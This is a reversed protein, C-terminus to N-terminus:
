PHNVVFGATGEQKLKDRLKEVHKRDIEPGIRVRYSAKGDKKSTDVYAQYGKKRLRDRLAISSKKNSSTSVQLAWAKVPKAPPKKKKQEIKKKRTDIPTPVPELEVQELSPFSPKAPIEITRAHRSKYGSGDLMAPIFIVGLAALVVAGILRKQLTSDV